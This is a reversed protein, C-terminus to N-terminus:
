KTMLVFNKMDARPVKRLLEHIVFERSASKQDTEGFLNLTPDNPSAGRYDHNTRPQFIQHAVKGITYRDEEYLIWRYAFRWTRLDLLFSLQQTLCEVCDVSINDEIRSRQFNILSQLNNETSHRRDNICARM